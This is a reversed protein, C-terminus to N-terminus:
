EGDMFRRMYRDFADDNVTRWDAKPKSPGHTERYVTDIDYLWAIVVHTLYVLGVLVASIAGWFAMWLLTPAWPQAVTWALLDHWM